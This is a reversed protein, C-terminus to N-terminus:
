FETLLNFRILTQIFLDRRDSNVNLISPYKKQQQETRRDLQGNAVKIQFVHQEQTLVAPGEFWWKTVIRVSQKAIPFTNDSLILSSM